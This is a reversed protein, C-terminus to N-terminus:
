RRAMGATKPSKTMVVVPPPAMTHGVFASRLNWGLSIGWVFNDFDVDTLQPAKERLAKYEADTFSDGMTYIDPEPTEFDREAHLAKAKHYLAILELLYPGRLAATSEVEPQSSTAMPHANIPLPTNLVTHLEM